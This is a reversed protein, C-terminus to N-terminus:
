IFQRHHNFLFDGRKIRADAGIGSIFSQPLQKEVAQRFLVALEFRDAVQGFTELGRGVVFGEGEFQALADFKM